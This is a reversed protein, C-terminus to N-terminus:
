DEEDSDPVYRQQRIHKLKARATELEREKRLILEQAEIEAKMDATLRGTLTSGSLEEETFLAAGQAAKVLSDAAKKM